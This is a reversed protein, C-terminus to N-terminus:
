ALGTRRRAPVRQNLEQNASRRAGRDESVTGEAARAVCLLLGLFLWTTSPDIASSHMTVILPLLIVAARLAFWGSALLDHTSRKSSRTVRLITVFWLVLAVLVLVGYQSVVEIVGNHPSQIGLTHYGAGGSRMFAEFAGPGAGFLPSTAALAIGALILEWRVYTSSDVRVEFGLVHIAFSSGGLYNAFEDFPSKAVSNVLIAALILIAIALLSALVPRARLLRLAAAVILVCVLLVGTRSNTLMMFAPVSILSALSLLRVLAREACRWLMFLALFSYLLFTAYNNPNFFTASVGWGELALELAVQSSISRGTALEVLAIASVILYGVLWGALLTKAYSLPEPLLAIAILLALGTALSLLEGWGTSVPGLFILACITAAAWTIALLVTMQRAASRPRRIAMFVQSLLLMLALLRFAFLSEIGPAFPGM